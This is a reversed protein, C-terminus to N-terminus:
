GVLDNISLIAVLFKSTAVGIFNDMADLDTVLHSAVTGSGLTEYESMSVRELRRLMRKRIRYTVDKSIITFQRTQWVGMILSALRMLLTLLLIALIYLVPGHWSQPFIGNMLSIAPGPEDLLVEDVLLPILLPVPVSLLAGLLAIINAKILEPRHSLVMATVERWSYPQNRLPEPDTGQLLSPAEASPVPQVPTNM